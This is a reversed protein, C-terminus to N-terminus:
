HHSAYKKGGSISEALDFCVSSFVEENMSNIFFHGDNFNHICFNRGAYNEWAKMSNENFEDYVGNLVSIDCDFRFDTKRNQYNQRYSALAYYDSKIVPMFFDLIEPHSRIADPVGGYDIIMKRFDKESMLYPDVDYDSCEPVCNGSFFLRVPKPIQGDSFIMKAVEFTIWCGMSHGYVAYEQIHEKQITDVIKNYVDSVIVEFDCCLHERIRSGHGALEIPVVKISESKGKWKHYINASGGAYSLCFLYM